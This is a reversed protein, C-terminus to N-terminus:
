KYKVGGSAICSEMDPYTQDPTTKLYYASAPSHCKGSNSKRILGSDTPQINQVPATIIEKPQTQSIIPVITQKEIIKPAIYAPTEIVRDIIPQNEILIPKQTETIKSTPEINTQTEVPKEIISKQEKPSPNDKIKTNDIRQDLTGSESKQNKDELKNLSSTISQIKTEQKTLSSTTFSSTQTIENKPTNATNGSCSAATSLICISIFSILLIKHLIFQTKTNTM